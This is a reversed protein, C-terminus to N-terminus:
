FIGVLALLSSSFLMGILTKGGDEEYCKEFPSINYIKFDIDTGMSICTSNQNFNLHLIREKQEQTTM